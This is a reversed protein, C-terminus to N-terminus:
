VATVSGPRTLVGPRVVRCMVDAAAFARRAAAEAQLRCDGFDRERGFRIPKYALAHNLEGASAPSLLM